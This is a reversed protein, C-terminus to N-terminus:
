GRIVLRFRDHVCDPFGMSVEGGAAQGGLNDDGGVAVVACAFFGPFEGGFNGSNDDETGFLAGPLSATDTEADGLGGAVDDAEGVGIILHGDFLEILEEREKAGVGVENDAGAGAAFRFDFLGLGEVAAEAAAAEIVHHLEEDSEGADAIGLAAELEEAVAEGLGDEGVGLDVAVHVIHFDDGEGEAHAGAEFLDGDAPAVVGVGAEVEDGAVDAVHPVDEADAAAHGGELGAVEGIEGGM